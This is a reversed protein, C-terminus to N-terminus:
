TQLQSHETLEWKTKLGVSKELLNERNERIKYTVPSQKETYPSWKVRSFLCEVYPTLMLTKITPINYGLQVLGGVLTINSSGKTVIHKEGHTSRRSNTVKRWSYLGIMTGALGKKEPNLTFIAALGDNTSKSKVSGSNSNIRAESYEKYVKKNCNYALGINITPSLNLM